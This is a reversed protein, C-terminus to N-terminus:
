PEDNHAEMVKRYYNRAGGSYSHLARQLDGGHKRLYYVLIFRGARINTESDLLEDKGNKIIGHKKLEPVWLPMVQMLGIAGKKSIAKPNGRSEVHIIAPILSDVSHHTRELGRQVQSISGTSPSLPLLLLIAIVALTKAYQYIRRKDPSFATRKTLTKTGIKIIKSVVSKSTTSDAGGYMNVLLPCTKFAKRILKAHKHAM